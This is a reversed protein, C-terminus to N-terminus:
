SISCHKPCCTCRKGVVKRAVVDATYATAYFVTAYVVTDVILKFTPVEKL